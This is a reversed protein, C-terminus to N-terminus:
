RLLKGNVIRPSKGLEEPAYYNSWTVMMLSCVILAGGFLEMLTLTEGFVVYSFCLCFLVQLPWSATVFSSNVQMNCWTILGYCLASTVFIAYLLCLLVNPSDIHFKEPKKAFFLASSWAMWVAGFFYTWATVNIPYERWRSHPNNFIYKKQIVIWLSSCFINGFLYLIGMANPEGVISDQFGTTTSPTLITTTPTPQHKATKSYTMILAGCTALAIGFIKAIGTRHELSPPKEVRMIVAVITCAVPVLPQFMSATDPTTNIVGLIYFLQASYIGVGGMMIFLVIDSSYYYIFYYFLVVTM